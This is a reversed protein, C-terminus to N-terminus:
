LGIFQGIQDCQRGDFHEITLSIGIILREIIVEGPGDKRTHM